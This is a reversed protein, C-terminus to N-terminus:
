ESGSCYVSCRELLFSIVAMWMCVPHLPRTPQRSFWAHAGASAQMASGCRRLWRASVMAPLSQARVVPSRAPFPSQTDSQGAM